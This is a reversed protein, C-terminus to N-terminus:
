SRANAPFTAITITAFSCLMPITNARPAFHRKSSTSERPLATCRNASIAKTETRWHKMSSTGCRQRSMIAVSLPPSAIVSILGHFLEVTSFHVCCVCSPTTGVKSVMGLADLPCSSAVRDVENRDECGPLHVSAWIVCRRWNWRIAWLQRAICNEQEIPPPANDRQIRGIFDFYGQFYDIPKGIQLVKVGAQPKHTYARNDASRVQKSSTFYRRAPACNRMETSSLRAIVCLAATGDNALDRGVSPPMNDVPFGARGAEISM